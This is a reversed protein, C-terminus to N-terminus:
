EATIRVSFVPRVTGKHEVRERGLPCAEIGVVVPAGIRHVPIPNGHGASIVIVRPGHVCKPCNEVITPAILHNHRGKRSVHNRAPERVRHLVNPRLDDLKGRPGEVQFVFM